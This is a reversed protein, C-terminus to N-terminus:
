QVISSDRYYTNSLEITKKPLKCTNTISTQICVEFGTIKSFESLVMLMNKLFSKKPIVTYMIVDDLM